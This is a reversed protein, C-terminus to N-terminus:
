LEKKVGALLKELRRGYEVYNDFRNQVQSTVSADHFVVEMHPEITIGGDYGSALLDKLIRKVEGDGEGPFTYVPADETEDWVLDKIHVHAIHEKVHSYFEWSSQRSSNPAKLCPNGTDFVLKLDPVAELLRMTYEWGMGGYNMCNEHLPLLGEDTFIRCLISMRRFRETELQDEPSRDALVAFSMIRILKTGLRKMRPIAREAEEISSDFPENIAKAWNAITSGFCNIGIGTNQLKECVTEFEEEGLDHINTNDINRAEIYKWGLTQTAKIQDDIGTAAEDAFGSLYMKGGKKYYKNM